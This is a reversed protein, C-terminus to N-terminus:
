FTLLYPTLFKINNRIYFIGKDGVNEGRSNQVVLYIEGNINKQGIVKVAHPFYKYDQFRSSIIGDKQKDWEQQWYIGAMIPKNTKYLAGRILDFNSMFGWIRELLSAHYKYAFKDLNVPWNNWNVLFDRNHTDISFPSIYKPLIGYKIIANRLYKIDMYKDTSKREKCSKAFLYTPELKIGFHDEAISTAVFATCMDTDYQNFIELPKSVIFDYNKLSCIFM